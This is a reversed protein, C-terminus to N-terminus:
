RSGADAPAAVAPKPVAPVLRPRGNVLEVRDEWRRDPDPEPVSAVLLRTYDHAPNTLVEAVPGEEVISGQFMTMMRGGLYAVTSLDHTIFLTTMGFQEQFEALIDLFNKRV